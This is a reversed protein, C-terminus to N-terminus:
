QVLVEGDEKIDVSGHAVGDDGTDKRTEAQDSQPLQISLAEDNAHAQQQSAHQAAIVSNYSTSDPKAIRGTMKPKPSQSNKITLRKDDNTKAVYKNRMEKQNNPNTTDVIRMGHSYLKLPKEISRYLVKGGKYRLPKMDDEKEAQHMKINLGERVVRERAM